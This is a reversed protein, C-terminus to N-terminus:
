YLEQHFHYIHRKHKSLFQLFKKALVINLEKIKNMLTKYNEEYLNQAYKTLNIDLYKM